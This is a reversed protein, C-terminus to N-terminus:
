KEEDGENRILKKLQKRGRSLRAFATATSIGLTKAIEEASYGEYYYMHLVIRNNKSLKGMIDFFRDGVDYRDNHILQSASGLPESFRYWRSALLSKSRNVACRILWAKIHEESEFSDKHRYFRIFVEQAIDDADSENRVLCLAATLVNVRYKRVYKEFEEDSMRAEGEKPCRRIYYGAHVSFRVCVCFKKLIEIIFGLKRYMCFQKKAHDSGSLGTM